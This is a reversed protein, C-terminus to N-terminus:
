DACPRGITRVPVPRHGHGGQTQTPPTPRAVPFDRGKGPEIRMCTLALGMLEPPRPCRFVARGGLGLDRAMLSGNAGTRLPVQRDSLSLRNGLDPGSVRTSVYSQLCPTPPELGRAGGPFVIGAPDDSCAMSVLPRATRGREAARRRSLEWDLARGQPRTGGSRSHPTCKRWGQHTLM